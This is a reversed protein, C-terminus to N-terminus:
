HAALSTRLPESLIGKIRPRAYVMSATIHDSLISEAAGKSLQALVLYASEAKCSNCDTTTTTTHGGHLSYSTTFTPLLIAHKSNMHSVESDAFLSKIINLLMNNVSKM